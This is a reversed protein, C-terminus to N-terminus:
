ALRRMFPLRLWIVGAVLALLGAGLYVTVPEGLRAAVSGAVLSGIPMAGFFIFTYISMVRGRLDDPIATQVLANATNAQTMFSWGVGVLGLVSLPLWRSWGFVLLAVPMTLAGLTWVRGRVPHRSLAAIMLAGIVAGVGRASLLVGNIRIDGGLINVSWAPVLTLLSMGFMSVLGLNLILVRITPSAIAYRLGERVQALASARLPPPEPYDIRMLFLAAIVALFSLGNLAFCWAPGLAAYVAAAVAPGLAVATNFMTSNLAIANTLDERDVLDVVFAHRAPADFAMATGLAFAIAIIHWPAVTGTAVLGALLFALGMMASQTVLLMTRRPLRDAVVGGFLMFLWAPIGSAFGVYGLYATSKTLQFMLYGQATTQMWSGVLSVLQGSFWLRYNPSRLAAFTRGLSLSARSPQVSRM